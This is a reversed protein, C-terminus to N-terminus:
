FDLQFRFHFWVDKLSPRKIDNTNNLEANLLGLEEFEQVRGEFGAINKIGHGSCTDM